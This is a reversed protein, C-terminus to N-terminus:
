QRFGSALSYQQSTAMKRQRPMSTAPLRRGAFLRVLVILALHSVIHPELRAGNAFLMTGPRRMAGGASQEDITVIRAKRLARRVIANGGAAGLVRTIPTMIAPDIIRASRV